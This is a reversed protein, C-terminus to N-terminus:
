VLEMIKALKERTIEEKVLYNRAGAEIILKVYDLEQHFSVAVIKIDRYLAVAKQTAEIGDMVPMNIDMFIIDYIREKLLELFEEGNSASEIIEVQEEMADMIMFRFAEVFQKNDDVILIRFKRM